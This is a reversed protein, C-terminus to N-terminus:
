FQIVEKKEFDGASGTGITNGQFYKYLDQKFYRPPYNFVVKDIVARTLHHEILEDIESSRGKAVTELIIRHEGIVQRLTDDIQNSMTRLRDFNYNLKKIHIWVRERSCSKYFFRHFEDDVAIMKGYNREIRYKEQTEINAEILKRDVDTFNHCAEKLISKEMALRMFRADDAQEMDILSVFSNKQPQVELLGEEALRIFAQRVPTRSAKFMESVENESIVQGPELILKIINARLILYVWEHIPQNKEKEIVEIKM